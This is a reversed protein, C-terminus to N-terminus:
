ISFWRCKTLDRDLQDTLNESLSSVQRAMMSAGLQVDSLASIVDPGHKEDKFITNAVLMMAEKFVVEDSFVKKNKILFHSKKGWLGRSFTLKKDLAAKLEHTKETRSASRPPYNM